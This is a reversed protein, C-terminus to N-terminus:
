EDRGPTNPSRSRLLLARRARAAASRSALAALFITLFRAVGMAVGIWSWRLVNPLGGTQPSRPALLDCVLGPAVHKALEGLGYRGDGLLLAAIGMVLGALTAGFRQKTKLAAVVYLPTLLALKYGPAFPINPLLGTALAKVGLMALSVGALVVVDNANQRAKPGM